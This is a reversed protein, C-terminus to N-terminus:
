IIKRSRDGCKGRVNWNGIMFVGKRNGLCGRGEWIRGGLDLNLVVGGYEWFIDM